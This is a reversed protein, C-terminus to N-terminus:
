NRSFTLWILSNDPEHLAFLGEAQDDKYEAEATDGTEKYYILQISDRQNDKFNGQYNTGDPLWLLGLGNQKDREYSGKYISGDTFRFEGIGHKRGKDWQGSYKAGDAFAYSGEGQIWGDQFNGTYVDGNAYNYVGQGHPEDKLLPGDYRDGNKYFLTGIVMFDDEWKGDFAKRMLHRTDLIMKLHHAKEHTYEELNPYTYVGQGYRKNSM